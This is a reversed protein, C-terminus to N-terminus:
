SLNNNINKREFDYDGANVIKCVVNDGRYLRSAIRADLTARIDDPLLNSTLVTWKELRGDAIRNLSSTTLESKNEAGVDDLMLVNVNKILHEIIGWDGGRLLSVVKQWKWMETQLSPIALEISDRIAAALHTKGVGSAGLLSLWRRPRQMNVVDNIFWQAERHMENAEEHIETNFNLEYRIPKYSREIGRWIDYQVNKKNIIDGINNM